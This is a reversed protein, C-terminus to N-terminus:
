TSSKNQDKNMIKNNDDNKSSAFDVYIESIYLENEISVLKRALEENYSMAEQILKTINSIILYVLEGNDKNLILVDRILPSTSLINKNKRTEDTDTSLYTYINELETMINDKRIETHNNSILYYFAIYLYYDIFKSNYFKKATLTYLNIIYQKNSNFFEETENELPLDNFIGNKLNNYLTDVKITEITINKALTKIYGCKALSLNQNQNQTSM